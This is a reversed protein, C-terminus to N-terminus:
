VGVTLLHKEYPIIYRARYKDGRGTLPPTALVGFSVWPAGECTNVALGDYEDGYADKVIERVEEELIKNPIIKTAAEDM